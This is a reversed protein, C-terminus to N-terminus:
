YYNKRMFWVLVLIFRVSAFVFCCHQNTHVCWGYACNMCVIYGCYITAHCELSCYVCVCMWRLIPLTLSISLLKYYWISHLIKEMPTPKMWLNQATRVRFAYTKQCGHITCICVCIDFICVYTFLYVRKEDCENM